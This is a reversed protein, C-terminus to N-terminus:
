SANQKDQRKQEKRWEEWERTLHEIHRKHENGNEDLFYMIPYTSLQPSLNNKECYWALAKGQNPKMRSGM